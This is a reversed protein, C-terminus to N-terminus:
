EDVSGTTEPPVCVTLARPRVGFRLVSEAMAPEGDLQIPGPGRRTVVADTAPGSVFFSARDLTGNFLRRLSLIARLASMRSIRCVLLRGDDPKAGPAIIAGAGYQDTNAVVTIIPEERSTVGDLDIDLPEPVHTFWERLGYLVYPLVGRRHSGESFRCAIAADLGIGATSLFLQGNVTGVDIPRPVATSLADVAAKLDVPIGLARAFGNGSGVPIIGLPTDTGVLACAVEHITGDGGAAIVLDAEGASAAALETAHGPRETEVSRLQWGKSIALRDLADAVIPGTGVNPGAKPNTVCVARM